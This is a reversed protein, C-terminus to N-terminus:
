GQHKKIRGTFWAFLEELTACPQNLEAAVTELLRPIPGDCVIKGHDLLIMRKAVAGVEQLIHTSMLITKNRSIDLILDRIDLVQNPDLGTTAEDLILVEPDHIIAQAIGVRQRYGRSLADIQKHMVRRLDCAAVVRAVADPIQKKPIFHQEAMSCLADAVLMDGYLPNNEPLYGLKRRVQHAQTVVDLGGVRIEGCAPKLLTTLVKMTTSKGAGNPGVLAVIEGCPVSFSIDDVARHSGYVYSFHRVEIMFCVYAWRAAGLCVQQFTWVADNWAWWVAVGCCALGSGYM